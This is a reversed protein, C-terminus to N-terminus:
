KGTYRKVEARIVNRKVREPEANGSVNVKNYRMERRSQLRKKRNNYFMVYKKKIIGYLKTFPVSIINVIKKLLKVIWHWVALIGRVIWGSFFSILMGLSFFYVAAGILGGAVFYWRFTGGGLELSYAFMVIAAFALFIVDEIGIVIANQEGFKRSIRLPEYFLALFFGIVAFNALLNLTESIQEYM